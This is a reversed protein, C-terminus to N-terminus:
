SHIGEKSLIKEFQEIADLDKNMAKRGEDALIKQAAVGFRASLGGMSRLFKISMLPFPTRKKIQRMDFTAIVKKSTEHKFALSSGQVRRKEPLYGLQILHDAAPLYIPKDKEQLLRSMENMWQKKKETM